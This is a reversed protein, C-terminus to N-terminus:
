PAKPPLIAITDGGRAEARLNLNDLILGLSHRFPIGRLNKTVPTRLMEAPLASLDINIALSDALFPGVDSLPTKVFQISFPENLAIALPSGPAPQIASVGTPDHWDNVNEATTLFLVGYRYELALDHPATLVALASCLDVGQLNLTLPLDVNQVRRADIVFPISHQDQLYMLADKLPTEVLEMGVPMIRQLENAIRPDDIEGAALQELLRNKVPQGNLDILRGMSFSMQQKPRSQIVIEYLGDLLDEHWHATTTIYGSHDIWAGERKGKEYRGSRTLKGRSYTEFPGHRVGDEFHEITKM